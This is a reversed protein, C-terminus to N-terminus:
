KGEYETLHAKNARLIFQLKAYRYQEGYAEALFEQVFDLADELELEVDDPAPLGNEDTPYKEAYPAETAPADAAATTRPDKTIDVTTTEDAM